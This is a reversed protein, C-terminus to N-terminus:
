LSKAAADAAMWGGQMAGAYGGSFTYASSLWLGRIPTAASPPRSFLRSPTPRFGYVEGSPTCLWKQMTRSTAIERQAVAGRLGPYRRDLDAVLADM